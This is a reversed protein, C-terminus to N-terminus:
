SARELAAAVESVTLWEDPALIKAVQPAFVPSHCVVERADGDTVIEGDAIVLARTAVEAVLEVDHIALAVAHGAAALERLLAALRAKATYDLGRTPEDLLVLPPAPALVVALALALREGESLDRPHHSGDIGSHIRELTALTTGAALHHERDSVACEDAVTREYLLAGADAPVLGVKRVLESATLAHPDAGDIVVRGRTPRRLGAFLNLLTSKGAGNRGMVAVIEGGRLEFDIDHLVDVTGYSVAVHSASATRKGVALNPPLSRPAGLRARLEPAARRADRVSLPLPSWRALKGLAVVPPAVPATQMILAPAGETVYGKDDIVAIRSAYQVVRELRHEALFVTLGLDDVLRTLIALVDEAAAPDLASTPEDLVLVRPSATLVAGIAVRQAEGSSLTALARRRLEAISLLDLVDEVRRRMAAPAVGLNEMVYALEDEVTDTVFSATPNQGVVGVRDALERPPTTTDVGDVAVRGALTGGTFHPVLGNVARLLTSKGAGTEGIVLCFDGEEIRLNVSRLAPEPADPYTFTVDDFTIM